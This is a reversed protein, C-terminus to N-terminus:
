YSRSRLDCYTTDYELAQIVRSAWDQGTHVGRHVDVLIPVHYRM